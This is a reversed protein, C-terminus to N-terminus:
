QLQQLLLANQQTNNSTENAGTMSQIAQLINLKDNAGDM